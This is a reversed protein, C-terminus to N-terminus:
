VLICARVASPRAVCMALVLGFFLPLRWILYYFFLRPLQLVGLFM